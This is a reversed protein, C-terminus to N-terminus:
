DSVVLGDASDCVVMVVVSQCVDACVFSMLRLMRRGGEAGEKDRRLFGTGEQM